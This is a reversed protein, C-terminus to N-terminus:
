PPDPPKRSKRALWAYFVAGGLDGRSRPKETQAPSLLVHGVRRGRALADPLGLCASRAILRALRAHSGEDLLHLNSNGAAIFIRRCLCQTSRLGLHLTSSAFTHRM